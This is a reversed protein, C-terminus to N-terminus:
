SGFRGSATPTKSELPAIAFDGLTISYSAQTENLILGLLSETAVAVALLVINRALPYNCVNLGADEPLRYGEDWVVEALAYLQTGVNHLEIRDFDIV